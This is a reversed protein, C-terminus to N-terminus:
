APVAVRASVKTVTKYGKSSGKVAVSIEHGGDKATVRYSRSTAGKIAKGDRRWQYSMTVKGPGWTGVQVRLEQGAVANGTIKPTVSRVPGAVVKATKKSFVQDTSIGPAKYTVRVSIRKGRDTATLTYTRKTAGSIKTSNRYWQYSVKTAAPERVPVTVTLKAGTKMTGAIKPRPASWFIGREAEVTYNSYVTRTVYGDRSARVRVRLRKGLDAATVRYYAEIAGPIATQERFWQYEVKSPAPNWAPSHSVGVDLGVTPYFRTRVKPKNFQQEPGVRQAVTGAFATTQEGASQFGFGGTGAYTYRLAGDRYSGGDVFHMKQPLKGDIGAVKVRYPVGYTAPPLTVAQDAARVEGTHGKLPSLDLLANATLDLGADKPLAALAHVSGVRNNALNLTMLRTLSGLGIVDEIQNDRLDLETLKTLGALPALDAIKNWGLGLSTLETLGALPSLDAIRNSGLALTSLKKLPAIPRLDAFGLGGADLVRLGTLTSLSSYDSVPTQLHLERLEDWGEIGKLNALRPARLVLSELNTPRGMAPLTTAKEDSIWLARLSPIDAIGTLDAAGNEGVELLHLKPLAPLTSLGRFGAGRLRLRELSELRSLFALSPVASDLLALGILRPLEPPTLDEALTSELLGLGTIPMGNLASLDNVRQRRLTFQDLSTLQGIGTLDDIPGSEDKDCSLLKVSDLQTATFPTSPKVGLADAICARLGPDPIEEPEAAMAPSPLLSLSLVLTAALLRTPVSM